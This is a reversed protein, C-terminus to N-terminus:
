EKKFFIRNKTENQITDTVIHEHESVRDKAIDLRSTMGDLTSNM